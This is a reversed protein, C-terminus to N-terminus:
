YIDNNVVVMQQKFEQIYGDLEGFFDKLNKIRGNIKGFLKDAAQSNNVTINNDSRNNKVSNKNEEFPQKSQEGFTPDDNLSLQGSQDSLLTNGRIL